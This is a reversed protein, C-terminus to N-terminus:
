IREMLVDGIKDITRRSIGDIGLFEKKNFKIKGVINEFNEFRDLIRDLKKGSIGLFKALHYRKDRSIQLNYTKFRTLYIKRIIESTFGTDKSFIIKTGLNITLYSIQSYLYDINNVYTFDFFGEILLYTNPFNRKINTIQEILRGTKLSTFFDSLTKREIAIGSFLYDGHALKIIRTPINKSLIEIIEKPERCDILLM